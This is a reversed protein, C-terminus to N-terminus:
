RFAEEILGIACSMREDHSGRLLKWPVSQAALAQEFWVHMEHRIHEGDRLGDQVFPIEDGTLLYLDCRCRTAIEAVAQSATGM